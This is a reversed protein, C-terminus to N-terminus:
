TFRILFVMTAFMVVVSIMVFLTLWTTSWSKGRHASLQTKRESMTDVNSELKQKTEDVVAADKALSDSFHLMNRRMRASMEALQDTLEQQLANSNEMLIATSKSATSPASSPLLTPIDSALNPGSDSAPAIPLLPDSPLPLLGDQSMSSGPNTGEPSPETSFEPPVARMPTSISPLIPEPRQIKPTTEAKVSQLFDQMRKLSLRIQHTKDSSGHSQEVNRLLKKAFKVYQLAELSKFCTSTRPDNDNHPEDWAGGSVSKELRRMLRSLNIEDHRVQETLTM